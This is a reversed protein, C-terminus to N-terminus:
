LQEKPKLNILAEKIEIKDGDKANLIKEYCNKQKKRLTLVYSEDETVPFRLIFNDKIFRMIHHNVKMQMQNCDKKTKKDYDMYGDIHRDLAFVCNSFCISAQKYLLLVEEKNQNDKESELAKTFISRGTKLMNLALNGGQTFSTSPASNYDDSNKTLHYVSRAQFIVISVPGLLPVSSLSLLQNLIYIDLSLRKAKNAIIFPTSVKTTDLNNIACNIVTEEVKFLSRYVYFATPSTFCLDSIGLYAEKFKFHRSVVKKVEDQVKTNPSSSFYDEQLTLSLIQFYGIVRHHYRFGFSKAIYPIVEIMREFKKVPQKHVLAVDAAALGRLIDDKGAIGINRFIECVMISLSSEGEVWELVNEAIGICGVWKWDQRMMPIGKCGTLIGVKKFTTLFSVAQAQSSVGVFALLLALCMIKKRIGNM